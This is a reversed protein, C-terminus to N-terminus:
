GSCSRGSRLSLSTIVNLRVASDPKRRHLVGKGRGGAHVVLGADGDVACRAFSDIWEHVTRPVAANYREPRNITIRAVHDQEEFVIDQVGM